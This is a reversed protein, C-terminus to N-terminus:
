YSQVPKKLYRIPCRRRKWNKGDAAIFYYGKYFSIGQIGAGRASYSDRASIAEPHDIVLMPLRQKGIFDQLVKVLVKSQRRSTHQDLIIKAPVQGTTGSSFLTKFVQEPPISSLCLYKFLRVALFPFDELIDGFSDTFLNGYELCNQQHHYHLGRLQQVLRTQKEHRSLEFPSIQFWDESVLDDLEKVV